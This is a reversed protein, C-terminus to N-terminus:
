KRIAIILREDRDPTPPTSAQGEELGGIEISMMQDELAVKRFGQMFLHNIRPGRAQKSPWLEEREFREGPLDPCSKIHHAESTIKEDFGM